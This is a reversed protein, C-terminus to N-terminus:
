RQIHDSSSTGILYYFLNLKKRLQQQQVSLVWSKMFQNRVRTATFIPEGFIIVGGGM